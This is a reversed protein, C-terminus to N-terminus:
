RAPAPIPTAAAAPAPTSAGRAPAAAAVRRAPAPTAAGRAPAAAAVRRAPVPTAAGRAAAPTLAGRAPRAPTASAPGAAEVQRLRQQLEQLEARQQQLQEEYSKVQQRSVALQAHFLLRMESIDHAQAAQQAKAEGSDIQTCRRRSSCLTLAPRASALTHACGLPRGEWGRVELKALTGRVAALEQM